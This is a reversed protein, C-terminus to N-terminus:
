KSSLLTNRIKFVENFIKTISIQDEVNDSFINEYSADTLDYKSNINERIKDCKLLHTESEEENKDGCLRCQM